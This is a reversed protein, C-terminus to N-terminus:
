SPAYADALFELLAADFAAPADMNSMHGAGALVVTRAGPIDRAIRECNAIFHAVEHEGWLVLTPARVEGGRGGAPPQPSVQRGPNRMHWFAYDGVIEQLAARVPPPSAAFFPTALWAARAAEVDGERAARVAAGVSARLTDDLPVGPLDADVLVLAAVVDPHAIALELAIGAGMSLGCVAARAIGLEDLLARLDDANSYTEGEAPPPTLGFGRVDCRVVRHHRTLAAMNPDWMRRDLGMGHVLLLPPGDGYVDHALTV